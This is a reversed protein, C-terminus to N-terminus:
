TIEGPFSEVLDLRSKAEIKSQASAFMHLAQPTRQMLFSLGETSIAMSAPKAGLDSMGAGGGLGAYFVDCWGGGFLDSGKELLSLCAGTLSALRSPKDVM